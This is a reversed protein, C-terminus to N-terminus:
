AVTGRFVAATRSAKASTVQDSTATASPRKLRAKCKIMEKMHMTSARPAHHPRQHLSPKDRPAHSCVFLRSHGLEAGPPPADNM